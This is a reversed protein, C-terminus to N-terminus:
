REEEEFLDRVSCNFVQAFIKLHEKKISTWEDRYYASITSPRIGTKQALEKQNMRYKGMLEPIRLM